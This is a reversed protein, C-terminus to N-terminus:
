RQLRRAAAYDIARDLRARDTSAFRQGDVDYAPVAGGSFLMWDAHAKKDDDVNKETYLVGRDLLWQRVPACAPDSPRCYLTVNVQTRARELAANGEAAAPSEEVRADVKSPVLPALPPGSASAAGSAAVSQADVTASAGGRPLSAFWAVGGLVCGVGILILGTRLGRERAPARAEDYAEAVAAEDDARCRVCKGDPALALGHVGCRQM